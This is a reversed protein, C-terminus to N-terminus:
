LQGQLDALMSQLQPISENQIRRCEIEEGSLGEENTDIGYQAKNVKLQLEDIESNLTIMEDENHELQIQKLV